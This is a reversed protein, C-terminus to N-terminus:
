QGYGDKLAKQLCEILGVVDEKEYIAFLQEKEYLGDRARCDFELPFSNKSDSEMQDLKDLFDFDGENRINGILDRYLFDSEWTEDKIMLGDFYSPTYKSYLIGNPMARFEELNVIRM